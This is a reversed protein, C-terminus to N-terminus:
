IIGYQEYLHQQPAFEGFYEKEAKLRAIIADDKNEFYGLFIADGEAFIEAKWKKNKYKESKVYYVGTIGSTNKSTRSQNQQNGCRGCPRLNCRRNNLTNRDAHDHYKLGLLKHMAINGNNQSNYADLTYYNGHDKHKRWCYDKILDYDEMDFYFLDDCNSCVGIGYLGHEDELNLAIYKNQKKFTKIIWEKRVCGCSPEGKSHKLAATNKEVINHENCSCICKWRALHKGKSDVCDEVQEIVTLRGFTQGTLDEKVKVM